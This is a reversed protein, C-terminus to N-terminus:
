MLKGHVKAMAATQLLAGKGMEKQLIALARRLMSITEGLEKDADLFDAHRRSSEPSSSCTRSFHFGRQPICM